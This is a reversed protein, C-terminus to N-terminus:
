TSPGARTRDRKGVLFRRGEQLGDLMSQMQAEVERYCQELVEPREADEPGLSPWVLPKGFAVTTQAPLPLYPVFGSTIGWPLCFVLPLVETRAWAHAHLLRALRDGRSLVVFQEHTGASVVPVIPTGERLALKLFGKRGGLVVKGRDRFTRFTDYDSGPYVLVSAGARLAHRASEHSARLIGLRLAYSRLTPDDFLFDHGLAYVARAPGFRDHVALFVFFGDSPVFGGNHNGVFLVPGSPPINEVGELQLRFYRKAFSGFWELVESVFAADRAHVDDASAHFAHGRLAYRAFRLVLRPPSLLVRRDEKPVLQRGRRVWDVAARLM